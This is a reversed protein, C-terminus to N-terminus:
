VPRAEGRVPRLPKRPAEREERTRRRNLAFGLVFLAAGLSILVPVPWRLQGTQPLEALPPLEEFIWRDLDPDYVWQGVPVTDEDVTVTIKDEDETDKGSETGTATVRATNEYKGESDFSISYAIFLKDSPELTLSNDTNPEKFGSLRGAAASGPGSLTSKKEFTYKGEPITLLPLGSRKLTVTVDIRGEYGSLRTDTIVFDKLPEEGSNIVELTYLVSENPKVTQKNVRKNIKVDPTPPPFGKIEPKLKNTVTVAATKESPSLTISGGNPSCSIDYKEKLRDATYVTGEATRAETEEVTYAGFPLNDRSAAFGNSKNLTFTYKVTENQKLVVTFVDGDGPTITEGDANKLVKQVTVAGLERLGGERSYSHRFGEGNEGALDVKEKISEEESVTEENTPEKFAVALVTPEPESKTVWIKLRYVQRDISYYTRDPTVCRLSSRYIDWDASPSPFDINLTISETKTGSISFRYGDEDSGEPMPAGYLPTLLYEFTDSPPSGSYVAFSQKVQLALPKPTVPDKPEEAFATGAPLLGTLLLLLATTLAALTRTKGFHHTKVIENM